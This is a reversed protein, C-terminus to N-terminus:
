KVVVTAKNVQTQFFVNSAFNQCSVLLLVHYEQLGLKLVSWVARSKFGTHFTRTRLYIPM